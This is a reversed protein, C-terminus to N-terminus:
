RAGSCGQRSRRLRSLTKRIEDLTIMQDPYRESLLNLYDANTAEAPMVTAADRLAKTLSFKPMVDQLQAAHARRQRAKASRQRERRLDHAALATALFTEGNVAWHEASLRGLTKYVDPRRLMQRLESPLMYSLPVLIQPNWWYPGPGPEDGRMLEQERRRLAPAFPYRDFCVSLGVALARIAPERVMALEVEMPRAQEVIAPLPVSARGSGLTVELPHARKPVLVQLEPKQKVLHAALDRDCGPCHTVPAGGNGPMDAEFDTLWSLIAARLASLDRSPKPRVDTETLDPKVM